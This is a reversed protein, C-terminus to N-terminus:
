EKGKRGRRKWVGDTGEEECLMEKKPAYYKRKGKKKRAQKAQVVGGSERV